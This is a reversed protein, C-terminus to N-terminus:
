LLTGNNLYFVVVLIFEHLKNLLFIFTSLIMYFLGFIFACDDVIDYFRLKDKFTEISAILLVINQAIDIETSCTLEKFCHTRVSM